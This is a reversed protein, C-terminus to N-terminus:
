FRFEIFFRLGLTRTDGGGTKSWRQSYSASGGGSVSKSFNYDLKPSVTISKSDQKPINNTIDKQWNTTYTASLTFDLNSAWKIHSLFPIKIGTPASFSYGTSLTHDITKSETVTTGLSGITKDQGSNVSSTFRTSIGRWWQIQWTGRLITSKTITNPLGPETGRETSNVNYSSNLSLSNFLKSLFLLRELGSISLSLNPFGTNSSWGTNVGMGESKSKNYSGSVSIRGISIGIGSVSYSKTVQGSNRYTSEESLRPVDPEEILGWRYKYSPRQLLSSSQNSKSISYSLSPAKIKQTIREIQMLIWHPTMVTAESDHKENRISTVLRVLKNLYIPVGISFRNSASVNRLSDLQITHNETYSANYSINPSLIGLISPTFAAGVTESRGTEKDARELNLDRTTRMSYNLRLANIPNFSFGGNATLGRIKTFTSRVFATDAWTYITDIVPPSYTTDWATDAYETPIRTYHSSENYSYSGGLNINQPYYRIEMGKIRISPLAPSYRYTLSSSFNLSSDISTYSNSYNDRYSFSGNLNDVTLRLLPNKSGSKRFSLGLNRSRSYSSQSKSEEKTLEADSGKEYKPFSSTSSFGFNLPLTFGWGSPLFKHLSLGGSLGIGRDSNTALSQDTRSATFAQLSKFYPDQTSYSLSINGLDALRCSVTVMGKLGGERRVDTLRLEDFWVEGTVIKDPDDNIVGLEIRMINTLSPNGRIWYSTNADVPYENATDGKPKNRHRVNAMDEIDIEIDQWTNKGITTRHEYYNLESGGFRIFIKADGTNRAWIKLGKYQIFNRAQTYATYCSGYNLTGITDPPLNLYKLVLSQERETRGYADKEIEVGPPSSYDLDEETNKVTITVNDSGKHKWRNGVIDLAAIDIEDGKSMADVWIRAYKISGWQSTGEDTDYESLPIRFFKWGNTRQILPIDEGLNIKFSFYNNQKNLLGNIDLDETSLRGDNETGNIKSYDDPDNSDYHYDDNGDDGAKQEADKGEIGDLGTDEDDDLKYNGNKDETDMTNNFGRISGAKDESYARRLADEKIDTGMDIRLIGKEGKVWVELAESESFDEGRQSVCTQLSTWYPSTEPYRWSDSDQNPLCLRLVTRKESRKHEPLDPYLEEAKIGDRPNYWQVQAFNDTNEGLPISGFSWNQRSIGLSTSTKTGEMDDLYVENKTNPNPLSIGVNGQVTFNSPAETEVLPLRDVWRTLFEPQFSMNGVVEGLLIRKPETGLKPRLDLSSTSHYIFASSIQGSKGIRSEGRIGILNKAAPQLFPVYQFDVKIEANPNEAQPNLFKIWGMDYDIEYDVGKTMKQGDITVVESGPVVNIMDLTYEKTTGKYQVGIYYKPQFDTYNYMNYISDPELLALDIFPYSQPFIILGRNYDVINNLRYNENKIGLLQTYPIATDGQVQVDSDEGGGTNNKFINIDFDRNEVNTAGISYINKLEYWWSWYSTDTATGQRERQIIQLGQIELEQTTDVIGVTCVEGGWNVYKWHIALMNKSSLSYNLELIPFYGKAITTTDIPLFFENDGAIKEVFKGEIVVTDFDIKIDFASGTKEAEGTYYDEDVFVALELVQKPLKNTDNFGSLIYDPPILTFFRSRVFDDDNITIDRITTGGGRWEKSQNESEEKSAIATINVPGIKAKTKIGFLGKHPTAGGILKLGPLSLDTNGARISQIMEDEDGEYELIITNKLDFERESDHDIYVHVKQGITGKLKVGLHQKMELNPFWSEHSQETQRRSFNQTTSPAFEIREVGSVDLQGGKGIIGSIPAPLVNPLKIIPLLKDSPAAATGTEEIVRKWGSGITLGALYAQFNNFFIIEIGVIVGHKSKYYTIFRKDWSIDLTTTLGVPSTFNFGQEVFPLYAQLSGPFIFLLTLCIARM